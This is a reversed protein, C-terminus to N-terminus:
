IGHWNATLGVADLDLTIKNTIGRSALSLEKM